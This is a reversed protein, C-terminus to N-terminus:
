FILDQGYFSTIDFWFETKYHCLLEKHKKLHAEENLTGNRIGEEFELKLEEFDKDTHASVNVTLHDYSKGGDHILQQKDPKWNIGSYRDEKPRAIITEIYIRKESIVYELRVGNFPIDKNVVPDNKDIVIADEKSYGWGGTIPLEGDLSKFCDSLVKRFSLATDIPYIHIQRNM